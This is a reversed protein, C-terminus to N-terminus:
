EQGEEKPQEPKPVVIYRFTIVPSQVTSHFSPQPAPPPPLFPPVPRLEPQQPYGPHPMYPAHQLPHQPHAPQLPYTPFPPYAPASSVPVDPMEPELEWSYKKQVPRDTNRFYWAFLGGALLGMLHSEWSIQEEKPFVGYVLGGYLAMVIFSIAVSPRDRRFLGSFFLFGAMAYVVGSAGIHYSPRAMVWTWIGTTAWLWGILEPGIKRYHLFIFASFFILPFSNSLLHLMDHHVLPATVIGILGKATRPFIGLRALNLDTLWSLLHVLVLLATLVLGPVVASKLRQEEDQKINFGPFSLPAMAADM